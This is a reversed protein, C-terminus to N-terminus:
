LYLTLAVSADISRDTVWGGMWGHMGKSAEMVTAVDWRYRRLLIKAPLPRKIDLLEMM